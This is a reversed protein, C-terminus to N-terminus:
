RLKKLVNLFKCILIKVVKDHCGLCSAPNKSYGCSFFTLCCGFSCSLEWTEDRMTLSCCHLANFWSQCSRCYSGPFPSLRLSLFLSCPCGSQSCCSSHFSHITVTIASATHREVRGTWVSLQVIAAPQNGLDAWSKLRTHPSDSLFIPSALSFANEIDILKIGWYIANPLISWDFILSHPHNSLLGLNNNIISSLLTPTIRSAPQQLLPDCQKSNVLHQWPCGSHKEKESWHQDCCFIHFM